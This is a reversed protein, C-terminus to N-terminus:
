CIIIVCWSLINIIDIDITGVGITEVIMRVDIMVGVDIMVICSMGGIVVGEICIEIVVGMNVIVIIVCDICVIAISRVRDVSEIAGTAAAGGVLLLDWRKMSLWGCWLSM